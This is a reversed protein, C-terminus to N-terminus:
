MLSLGGPVDTLPQTVGEALEKVDDGDLPARLRALTIKSMAGHTAPQGWCAYAAPATSRTQQRQTRLGRPPAYGLRRM